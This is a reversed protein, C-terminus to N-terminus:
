QGGNISSRDFSEFHFTWTTPDLVKKQAPVPTATQLVGNNWTFVTKIAPVTSTLTCLFIRKLRLSQDYLANLYEVTPSSAELTITVPIMAPVIGAVLKGDVTFRTEAIQVSESGIASDASFMELTFGNPYLTEITMVSEANAATIDNYNAM